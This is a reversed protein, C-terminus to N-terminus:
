KERGAARWLALREANQVRLLDLQHQFDADRQEPSLCRDPIVDPTEEPRPPRAPQQQTRATEQESPVPPARQQAAGDDTVAAARAPGEQGPTPGAPNGRATQSSETPPSM